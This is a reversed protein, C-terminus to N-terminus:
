KLSRESALIPEILADLYEHFIALQFNNLAKSQQHIVKYGLFINQLLRSQQWINGGKPRIKNFEVITNIQDEILAYKDAYTEFTKDESSMATNYLDAVDAQVREVRDIQTQDKPPVLLVRCSSFLFATIALLFLLKKM